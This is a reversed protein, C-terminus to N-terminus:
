SGIMAPQRGWTGAKNTGCLGGWATGNGSCRAVLSRTKAFKEMLCHGVPSVSRALMYYDGLLSADGNKWAV